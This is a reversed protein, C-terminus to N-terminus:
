AAVVGKGRGKRSFGEGIPKEPQIGLPLPPAARQAEAAIEGETKGAATAKLEAEMAKRATKTPPTLNIISKDKIGHAYTLTNVVWDPVPVPGNGSPIANYRKSIGDTTTFLFLHSRKFFLSLM